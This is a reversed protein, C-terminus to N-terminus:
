WLCSTLALCKLINPSYILMAIENQEEVGNKEPLAESNNASNDIAENVKILDVAKGIDTNDANTNNKVEQSDQTDNQLSTPTTNDLNM